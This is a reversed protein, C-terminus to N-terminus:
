AAPESLGSILIPFKPQQQLLRPPCSLIHPVREDFNRPPSSVIGKSHIASSFDLSTGTADDDESEIDSLERGNHGCRYEEAYRDRLDELHTNSATMRVLSCTHNTKDTLVQAQQLKIREKELQKIRAQLKQNETAITNENIDSQRQSPKGSRKVSVALLLEVKTQWMKDLWPKNCDPRASNEHISRHPLLCCTLVTAPGRLVGYM